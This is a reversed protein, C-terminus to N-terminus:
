LYFCCELKGGFGGGHFYPVRQIRGSNFVIQDHQVSEMTKVPDTSFSLRRKRNTTAMEPSRTLPTTATVEPLQTGGVLDDENTPSNSMARERLRKQEQKWFKRDAKALKREVKKQKSRVRMRALWSLQDVQEIAKRREAEQQLYSQSGYPARLWVRRRRRVMRFSSAAAAVSLAWRAWTPIQWPLWAAYLLILHVLGFAGLMFVLHGLIDSSLHSWGFVNHELALKIELPVARDYALEDWEDEVQDVVQLIKEEVSIDDDSAASDDDNDDDHSKREHLLIGTSRSRPIDSNSGPIMSSFGSSFNSFDLLSRSRQKTFHSSSSQLAEDRSHQQQHHEHSEISSTRHMFRVATPATMEAPTDAADNLRAEYYHQHQLQQQEKSRRRKHTPTNPQLSEDIVVGGHHHPELLLPTGSAASSYSLDSSFSDDSNNNTSATSRKNHVMKNPSSSSASASAPM